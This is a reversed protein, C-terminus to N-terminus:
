RRGAAVKRKRRGSRHSGAKARSPLKKARAGRVVAPSFRDPAVASCCQCGQRCHNAAREEDMPRGILFGQVSDCGLRLLEEYQEFTEVGEAVVQLGLNHALSIVTRVIVHDDQDELMGAIFSRDIKLRTLPFRKLHTLSAYGMGFDDLAIAM